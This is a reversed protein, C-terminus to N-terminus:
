LIFKEVDSYEKAEIVPSIEWHSLGGSRVLREFEIMMDFKNGEFKNRIEIQTEYAVEREKSKIYLSPGDLMVAMVRANPEEKLQINYIILGNSQSGFIDVFTGKLTFLSHVRNDSDRMKSLMYTMVTLRDSTDTYILALARSGLCIMKHIVKVDLENLGLDEIMNNSKIGIGFAFKTGINAVFNIERDSCVQLNDGHLDRIRIFENKVGMKNQAPSEMIKSGEATFLYTIIRRDRGQQLPPNAACSNVIVLQTIHSSSFEISTPCFEGPTEQSGKKEEYKKIESLSGSNNLNFLGLKGSLIERRKKDLMAVLVHRSFSTWTAEEFKSSATGLRLATQLEMNSRDYAIIRGNSTAVFHM